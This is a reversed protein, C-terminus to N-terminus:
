EAEGVEKEEHQEPRRALVRQYFLGIGILVAGLGIFSLARLFGELNSMDIIFVKLVAILVLAASALRLTVANLRSGLALLIVGFILWVVSYTYMEGQMFDKWYGIGPGQWARRVSLTVWAFALIAGGVALAKVYLDPRKGRAYYALGFIALAPLLYGLLLLNFFPYAGTLEGSIYPNLGVLHAFLSSLLSIGGVLMSGWRFVPSPSKMDLTMLVASAGVTLLTYISQEGLSPAGGALSGGNLAHRVLVAVTMLAMLSALAQLFNLVRASASHRVMYAGLGLLVAPIGYGPLLQNFFPTAALDLDSVLGPQWAIRALVVIGGLALMWPLVPWPRFRSALLFAFGVGAVLITTFLSNTFAHLALILGLNSGTVFLFVNAQSWQGGLGRRWFIEAATLCFVAFAISALGHPWDLGFNGQAIFSAALLAFPAFSMLATWGLAYATATRVHRYHALVGLLAIAFALYFIDWGLPATSEWGSGSSQLWAEVLESLLNAAALLVGAGVAILAPLATNRWAAWFGLAAVIIAFPAFGFERYTDPEFFILALLIAALAGSIGIAVHPNGRFFTTKWVELSTPTSGGEEVSSKAAEDLNDPWLFALGAIAALQAVVVPWLAEDAGDLVVAACWGLLLVNAVVPVINWGKLRAAAATALWAIALYIFLAWYNAEPSDILAPTIMSALLGLTALAQGHLMSLAVGAFSVLALLIFATTPGIFGYIVHTAFVAGMLTILGAATLVGPVLANKIAPLDLPTERRRVWEGAALLILGFIIAMTIRVTPNVLGSEISYKVMFVGGLALALGGVWVPWRAGFRSEFSQKPEEITPTEADFATATTAEDEELSPLNEQAIEWPGRLTVNESEAAGEENQEAPSAEATEAAENHAVGFNAELQALRTELKGLRNRVRLFGVALGVAILFLFEVM